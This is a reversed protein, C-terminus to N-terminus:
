ELASRLEWQRLREWTPGAGAPLLTGHNGKGSKDYVIEGAGEEMPLWLAFKDPRVPNHYNLHNWRIEDPDLTYDIYIRMGDILGHFYAPKSGTIRLPGALTDINGPSRSEETDLEGNFYTRQEGISADYTFGLHSWYPGIVENTWLRYDSGGVRVTFGVQNRTWTDESILHYSGWGNKNVLFTWTSPHRSTQYVRFEITISKPNLSPSDPVEVYDDVSDLALVHRAFGLSRPIRRPQQKYGGKPIAGYITM